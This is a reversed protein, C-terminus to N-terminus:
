SVTFISIKVEEGTSNKVTVREISDATGTAFDLTYNAMSRVPLFLPIGATLSVTYVMRGVGANQDTRLEVDVGSVDSLLMLLEFTGTIEDRDYVKATGADAITVSRYQPTGDVLTQVPEGVKDVILQVGDDGTYTLAFSLNVYPM